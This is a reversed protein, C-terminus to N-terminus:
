RSGPIPRGSRPGLRRRWRSKPGGRSRKAAGAIQQIGLAAAVCFLPVDSVLYRPYSEAIAAPAALLCLGVLWPLLAPGGFRRWAVTLGGLGGLVIAGLLPGPVIIYRQYARIWGAYPQVVRAGPGGLDYKSFDRATQPSAQRPSGVPFM